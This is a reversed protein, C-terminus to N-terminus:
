LAVRVPRTGTDLNISYDARIVVFNASIIIAQKNQCGVLHKFDVSFSKTVPVHLTFALSFHYVLELVFL